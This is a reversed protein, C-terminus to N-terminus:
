DPVDEAEPESEAAEETSSAEELEEMEKELDDRDKVLVSIEQGPAPSPTGGQVILLYDTRGQPDPTGVAAYYEGAEAEERFLDRADLCQRFFLDMWDMLEREDPVGDDQRGKLWCLTGNPGEFLAHYLRVEQSDGKQPHLVTTQTWVGYVPGSAPDGVVQEWNANEKYLDVLGPWVTPPILDLAVAAMSGDELLKLRDLEVMLTQGRNDTYVSGELGAPAWSIYEKLSQGFVEAQEELTLQSIGNDRVSNLLRNLNLLPKVEELPELSFVLKRDDKVRPTPAPVPSNGEAASISSEAPPASESEPGQSAMGPLPQLRPSQLQALAYLGVALAFAAAAGAVAKLATRWPRPAVTQKWFIDAQRVLKPDLGNMAQLIMKGDM